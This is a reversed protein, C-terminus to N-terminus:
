FPFELLGSNYDDDSTAVVVRDGAFAIGFTAIEADYCGIDRLGDAESFLYVHENNMEDANTVAWLDGQRAVQPPGLGFIWVDDLKTEEGSGSIFFTGIEDLSLSEFDSRTVMLVEGEALVIPGGFHEDTTEDLVEGTERDLIRQVPDIDDTLSDETFFIYRDGVLLTSLPLESEYLVEPEGPERWSTTRIYYTTEGGLLQTTDNYRDGGIWFVEDEIVVVSGVTYSWEYEDSPPVGVEISLDGGELPVSSLVAVEVDLGPVQSGSPFLASDETLWFGSWIDTPRESVFTPEDDGSRLAYLEIQTSFFIDGTQPDYEVHGVAWDEEENFRRPAFLQMGACSGANTAATSGAGNDAEGNEPNEEDDSSGGCGASLLALILGCLICDIYCHRRM